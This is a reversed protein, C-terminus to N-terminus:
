GHMDLTVMRESVNLWCKKESDYVFLTGITRGYIDTGHRELKVKKRGDILKILGMTAIDGWEQGDEPCDIADLRIRERVENCVIDVTDGDIINKVVVSPLKEIEKHHQTSVIKTSYDYEIGRGRKSSKVYQDRKKRGTSMRVYKKTKRLLKLGILGFLFLGIVIEM